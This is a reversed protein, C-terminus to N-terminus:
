LENTNARSNGIGTIYKKINELITSKLNFCGLRGKKKINERKNKIAPIRHREKAREGEHSEQDTFHLM